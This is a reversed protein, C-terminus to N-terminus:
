MRSRVTGFISMGIIFMSYLIIMACVVWAWVNCWWRENKDGKGTVLCTVQFLSLIGVPVMTLMILMIIFMKQGWTVERKGVLISLCLIVLASALAIAAWKSQQVGIIIDSTVPM